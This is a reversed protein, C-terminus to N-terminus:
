TASGMHHNSGDDITAFHKTPHVGITFEIGLLNAADVLYETNGTERYLEIRKMASGLRDYKTGQWPDSFDGYRYTGLAMRNHMLTVFEPFWNAWAQELTIVRPRPEDHEPAGAAWRWLNAMFFARDQM